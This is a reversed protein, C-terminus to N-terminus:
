ALTALASQPNKSSPYSVSKWGRLPQICRLHAVFLSLILDVELEKSRVKGSKTFADGDIASVLKTFCLFKGGALVRDLCNCSFNKGPISNGHLFRSLSFVERM